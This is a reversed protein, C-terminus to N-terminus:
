LVQAPLLFHMKLITVAQFSDVGCAQDSGAESRWPGPPKSDMSWNWSLVDIGSIALLVCCLVRM